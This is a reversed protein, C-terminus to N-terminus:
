AGEEPPPGSRKYMFCSSCKRCQWCETHIPQGDELGADKYTVNWGADCGHSAIDDM